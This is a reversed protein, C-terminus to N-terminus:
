FFCRTGQGRDQVPFKTESKNGKVPAGVGGGSFGAIYSFPLIRCIMLRSLVTSQPMRKFILARGNVGAGLSVM